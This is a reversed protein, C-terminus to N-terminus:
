IKTNKHHSFSLECSKNLPNLIDLSPTCLLVVAVSIQIYILTLVTWVFNLLIISRRKIIHIQRCSAALFTISHFTHIPQRNVELKNIFKLWGFELHTYDSSTVPYLCMSKHCTKRCISILDQQDIM